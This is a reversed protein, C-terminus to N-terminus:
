KTAGQRLVMPAFLGYGITHYEAGPPLGDKPGTQFHRPWATGPVPKGHHPGLPNKLTGIVTVEITNAGRKLHETVECEWPPATVYGAPRGNVVVKAVSGYWEPLAVVTRQDPAAVEFVASYSVGHGYFPLGQENWRGPRLPQEPAIVFGKATARLAFSGLVYAPELEHRLTFPAAKITVVNEGERAVAGLAIRGFARDLWWDGAKARVPAGNCTITYLEAQEIVIALDAPVPGAITFRYSAEFGSGAPFRRKILDDRFQVASDWPNRELGNKKFAFQGAPYFYSNLKTEGGATIDVHDLTLVNPGVRRITMPGKAALTASAPREAVGPQGARSSLFLLLSGSPPLRYALEAGRATTTYAAARTTGRELDWQEISRLATAITGTSAHEASTNVLFLLQGDALQRRQHFLIGADGAARRIAFGEAQGATELEAVLAPVERRQWSASRALAAIREAVVGDVRTPPEGSALVKGGQQLFKELLAVTPGDLNETGAPVVVTTYTRQGVKLGASTVAGHRAMIDEDGIDYEIQAAELVKLLDVFTGSLEKLRAAVGQYMWATTTPELVLVRNIQEGQAIAYSLRTLYRANVHYAEWWPEHYSFSQPHDRKRAGRLTIYSLHEDFLNVGLVGLWDGIRKMDEFRLDWGGAGYIECLTRKRGLQNAVSALERVMRINGFQADTGERYQNM